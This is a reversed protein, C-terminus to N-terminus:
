IQQKQPNATIIIIQAQNLLFLNTGKTTNISSPHGLKGDLHHYNDDDDDDGDDKKTTTM